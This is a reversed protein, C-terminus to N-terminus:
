ANLPIIHFQEVDVLGYDTLKLSPIVPLAVFALAIFPNPLTCGLAEAAVLSEHALHAMDEYPRASMLGAVELPVEVLAAGDAVAVLGGRLAAVLRSADLM